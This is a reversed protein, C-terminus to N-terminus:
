EKVELIGNDFLFKAYEEVTMGKAEADSPKLVIYSNPISKHLEKLQEEFEKLSEYGEQKWSPTTLEKPVPNISTPM